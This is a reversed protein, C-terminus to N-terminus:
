SECCLTLSKKTWCLIRAIQVVFLTRQSKFSLEAVNDKHKIFVCNYMAITNELQVTTLLVNRCHIGSVSKKSVNNNKQPMAM